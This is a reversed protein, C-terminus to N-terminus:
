AGAGWILLHCAVRYRPAHAHAKQPPLMPGPQFLESNHPLLWSDRLAGMRRALQLSASWGRPWDPAILLCDVEEQIIKRIIAGYEEFPGNIFAFHRRRTRPDQAWLHNFADVGSTGISYFRSYFNGKVKTSEASAFLDITPRRQRVSARGLVDRRYVEGNLVWDSGDVQKSFMDAIVQRATYRPFWQVELEVDHKACLLRVRKVLPFTSPGGKMGMVSYMNGQNDTQYVLRRGVILHPKSHLLVRVTRDLADIERETSSYLGRAMRANEENSFPVIIPHGELEGGPTYAAFQRESADGALVLVQRKSRWVKGDSVSLQEAFSAVEAKFPGAPFTDDWSAAGSAAKHAARSFLPSLEVCHSMAMMKGAVSAVVRASTSTSAAVEAALELFLQVKRPPVSFRQRAASVDTGLFTASTAPLLHCKSLSLTFGLCTIITVVVRCQFMAAAKTRAAGLQDDILYAMRVGAARLPRYVEAKITSYVWCAPAIGFPLHTFCYDVGEWSFGLYQWFHPHVPVHWYGSKDDTTYLFDDPLVFHAVDGIREYKLPMYKLFLNIYMPNICLRLKPLKDDVVRLGNVVTPGTLPTWVKIVGQRLAAAVEQQTFTSYQAASKHNPFRVAKPKDGSLHGAVQGAPLVQGLMGQVIRVKKERQPAHQQSAHTTPVFDFSYGERVWKAVAKATRATNGTDAFYAEWLPAVLHLGGALFATPDPCLSHLQHLWEEDQQTDVAAATGLLRLQATAALLTQHRGQLEGEPAVPPLSFFPMSLDLEQPPAWATQTHPHPWTDLEWCPGDATGEFGAFDTDDGWGTEPGGGHLSVVEALGATTHVAAPAHSLIDVGVAWASSQQAGTALPLASQPTLAGEKSYCLVVCLCVCLTLIYWSGSARVTVNLHFVRQAPDHANLSNRTTAHM